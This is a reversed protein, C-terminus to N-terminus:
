QSIQSFTTSFIIFIEIIRINLWTCIDCWFMEDAKGSINRTSHMKEGWILYIDIRSCVLMLALTFQCSLTQMLPKRGIISGIGICAYFSVIVTTLIQPSHVLSCSNVTQWFCSALAFTAVIVFEWCVVVRTVVRRRGSNKDISRCLRVPQWVHTFCLLKRESNFKYINLYNMTIQGCSINQKIFVKDAFYCIEPHRSIYLVSIFYVCLCRPYTCWSCSLRAKESLLGFCSIQTIHHVIKM